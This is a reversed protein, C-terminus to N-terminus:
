NLDRHRVSVSQHTKRFLAALRETMYVSRHRGGTCGISVTLYARNEAEFDPIFRALFGAIASYMEEVSAHKELYQVIAEDRGSLPRLSVEWHPNPLCRIDFSFDTDLPIGHKYGFSQFLISMGETDKDILRENIQQRLQHLNSKSTDIFVDASMSIPELRKRELHIAQTLTAGETTLPHRRRTENFRRILTDLGTQLFIVEIKVNKERLEQLIKPLAKMGEDDSSRVDVGIAVKNQVPHSSLKKILSPLLEVPLNDVCYFGADELTHLAVSKGSGSQGSVILCRM